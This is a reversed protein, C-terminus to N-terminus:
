SLSGYNQIYFYAVFILAEKISGLIHTGFGSFFHTGGILVTLKYSFLEEDVPSKKLQQQLEIESIHM